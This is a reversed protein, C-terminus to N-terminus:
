EYCYLKRKHLYGRLYWKAYKLVVRVFGRRKSTYLYIQIVTLTCYNLNEFTKFNTNNSYKNRKMRSHLVFTISTSLRFSAKADNRFSALYHNLM